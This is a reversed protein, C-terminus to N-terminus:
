KLRNKHATGTVDLANSCVDIPAEAVSATGRGTTAPKAHTAAAVHPQPARQPESVRTWNEGGCLFGLVCGEIRLTDPNVLSIHSDYTKGNQANYVEGDWRDPQKQQMNLLIPLGLTPRNRKSPDPNQADTGGPTKEWSVVGWVTGGCNEVRIKATADKVLWEGTVDPKVNGATAASGQGSTTKPGAAM